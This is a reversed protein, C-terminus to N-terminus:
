LKEGSETTKVGVVRRVAGPKGKEGPLTVGSGNFGTGPSCVVGATM